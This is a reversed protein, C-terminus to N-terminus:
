IGKACSVITENQLHLSLGKALKSVAKGGDSTDAECFMVGWSCAWREALAQISFWENGKVLSAGLATIEIYELKAWPLWFMSATALSVVEKREKGHATCVPIM